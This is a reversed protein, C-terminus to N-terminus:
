WGGRVVVGTLEPSASLQLATASSASSAERASQGGRVYFYIAAGAAVASLSASGLALYHRTHGTNRWASFASPTTANDAEDFAAGSWLHFGLAAGGFALAGAGLSLPLIFSRRRPAPAPAAVDLAAPEDAARSPTSPEPPPQKPAAELPEKTSPKAAAKAMRGPSPKAAGKATRAVTPVDAEGDRLKALAPVQLTQSDSSIKLTITTSWTRYGSARATFTYTGGDIPLAFGWAAAPVKEAGRRLELGAARPEDVAIKLQSLSPKLRAAHRSAVGALKGNGAATATRNAEVFLGWATALQDNQERCAALNLLTTVVPELKQSAEFAACAEAIQGKELLARGQDFLSQAQATTSQARAPTPVALGGFVGLVGLLGLAFAALRPARPSPPRASLSKTGTTTATM